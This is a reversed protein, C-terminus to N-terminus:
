LIGSEIPRFQYQRPAANKGFVAAKPDGAAARKTPSFHKTNTLSLNLWASSALFERQTM